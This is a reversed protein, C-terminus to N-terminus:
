VFRQMLLRQGLESFPECGAVEARTLQGLRQQSANAIVLIRQVSENGNGVVKSEYLSISGVLRPRLTLRACQISQRNNM